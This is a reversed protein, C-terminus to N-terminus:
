KQFQVLRECSIETRHGRPQSRRTVLSRQFYYLYNNANLIAKEQRDVLGIAADHCDNWQYGVSDTTVPVNGDPWIGVGILRESHTIEHAIIGAALAYERNDHLQRM